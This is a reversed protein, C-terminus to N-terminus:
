NQIILRAVKTPACPQVVSSKKLVMSLIQISSHHFRTFLTSCTNKTKNKRIVSWLRLINKGLGVGLDVLSNKVPELIDEAEQNSIIRDSKKNRKYEELIEKGRDEIAKIQSENDNPDIGRKKLNEDRMRFSILFSLFLKPPSNIYM